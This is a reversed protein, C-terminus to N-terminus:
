LAGQPLRTDEVPEDAVGQFSHRACCLYMNSRDDLLNERGHKRAIVTAFEQEDSIYSQDLTQYKAGM